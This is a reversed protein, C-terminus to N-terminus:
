KEKRNKVSLNVNILKTNKAFVTQATDLHKSRQFMEFVTRGGIKVGLKVRAMQM